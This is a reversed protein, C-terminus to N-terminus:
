TLLGKCHWSIYATEIRREAIVRKSFGKTAKCHVFRIHKQVLAMIQVAIQM